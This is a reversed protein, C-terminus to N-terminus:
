ETGGMPKPWGRELVTQQVGEQLEPGHYVGGLNAVDQPRSISSIWTTDGIDGNLVRLATQSVMSAISDMGLSGGPIFSEGCAPLPVSGGEPWDTFKHKFDGSENFLHRADFAGSPASLAQGVQTHPESWAQILRWTAGESKVKWFSSESQWEATTVVVLDAKEFVEPKQQLVAEAFTTYATVEITPLDRLIKGQLAVAKAKGLDDAGLVHRGLNASILTDYDILTLHGVGSRALQMAVSSGLSGVGICVVCAGELRTAIGSLDRSLIEKRDLVDLTASCITKPSKNATKVPRRRASRLNFKTGRNSEAGSSRVNLCYIPADARAPLELAIWRNTLSSSNEFWQVLQKAEKPDLHPTLWPLLNEPTPIHIDPYSKLKVYFCPTEAARIAVSRGVMRKYHNKLASSNTALWITEQGSPLTQRPDSLAFLRSAALPRDLLVLNQLSQEQQMSWYSTIENRFEMKRREADSGMTSLSVIGALRSLSDEVVFEPTGTVPRERFGHLCLGSKMAHPWILWPSPEVNLKLAEQPFNSPFSIRLWRAEGMYDIPLPFSFCAAEGPKMPVPTLLASASDEGLAKQLAAIGRQLAKDPHEAM